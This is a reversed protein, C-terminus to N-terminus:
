PRDESGSLGIQHQGRKVWLCLYGGSVQREACLLAYDPPMTGGYGCYTLLILGPPAALLMATTRDVEAYYRAVSRHVTDDLANDGDFLNEGFPNYMYIADFAGRTLFGDEFRGHVIEVREASVLRAADHAVQVLHGRHEVGVFLAGRTCAAGVLCFKGVGAGVDLIRRAGEGVLLDAARRATEVPTWYRASVSRYKHPYIEDFDEDRLPARQRLARRLHDLKVAAGV